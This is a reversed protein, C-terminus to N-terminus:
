KASDEHIDLFLGGSEILNDGVTSSWLMQVVFCWQGGGRDTSPVIVRVKQGRLDHIGILRLGSLSIDESVLHLERGDETLVTVPHLVHIRRHARREREVAAAKYKRILQQAARRVDRHHSVERHLRAKMPSVYYYRGSRHNLRKDVLSVVEKWLATSMGAQELEERIERPVVYGQDRARNLVTEAVSQLETLVM